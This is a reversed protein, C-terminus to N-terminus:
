FKARVHEGARALESLDQGPLNAPCARESLIKRHDRRAILDANGRALV